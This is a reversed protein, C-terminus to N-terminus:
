APLPERRHRFAPGRRRGDQQQALTKNTPKVRNERDEPASHLCPNCYTMVYWSHHRNLNELSIYVTCPVWTRFIVSSQSHQKRSFLPTLLENIIFYKTSAAPTSGKMGM